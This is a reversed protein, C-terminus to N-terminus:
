VVYVTVCTNVTSSIVQIGKLIAANWKATGNYKEGCASAVTDVAPDVDKATGFLENTSTQQDEANIGPKSKLVVIASCFKRKDAVMVVYDILGPLNDKIAEEVPIPAINEGGATILLEKYRGTISLLGFQDIKGKDGSHLWGEKDITEATKSEMGAGMYGLMIHRGRFCIEGESGPPQPKAKANPDAALEEETPPLLIGLECGPLSHGCKGTQFYGPGSVTQPGTCESMGYVEYIHIDLSGFFDLTSKAIPAAASLFVKAETLGLVTKVKSFVLSNALSYGYPLGEAEAGCQSNAHAVAGRGKAWGAITSVVGSNNRGAAIITEQFKEWVRPVGFFMTPLTQQLTFKITGKLADPRAFTVESWSLMEPHGSMALTFHIDLMQAAIHSLPLYSISREAEAKSGMGTGTSAFWDLTCRATWTCNDHTIMVAKPNGTTGSTYILTCPHGPKQASIRAEIASDEVKESLAMFDKWNIVNVRDHQGEPVEGTWMVITKLSPMRSADDKILGMFKALHKSDEVVVVKSESHEVIYACAEPGNTTYIGAAKGGCAIAGMNALIWEPSNFGIISVTDFQEIGLHMLAKGAKLTDNYYEKMTWTEWEPEWGGYPAGPM